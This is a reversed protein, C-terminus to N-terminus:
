TACLGSAVTPFSVGKIFTLPFAKRPGSPMLTFCDENHLTPGDIFLHLQM